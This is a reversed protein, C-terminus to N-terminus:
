HTPNLRPIHALRWEGGSNLLRDPDTHSIWVGDNIQRGLADEIYQQLIKMRFQVERGEHKESIHKWMFSKERSQRNGNHYLKDHTTGRHYGCAVYWVMGYWVM